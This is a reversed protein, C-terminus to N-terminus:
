VIKLCQMSLIKCQRTWNYKFMCVAKGDDPWGGNNGQYYDEGGGGGGNAGNTGNTGNAHHGNHGGGNSTTTTRGWPSGNKQGGGGMMPSDANMIHQQQGTGLLDAREGRYRSSPSSSSSAVWSKFSLLQDKILSELTARPM